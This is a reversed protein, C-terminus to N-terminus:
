IVMAFLTTTVDLRSEALTTNVDAFGGSLGTLSQEYFVTAVM